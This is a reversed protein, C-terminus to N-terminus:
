NYSSTAMSHSAAALIGKSISSVTSSSSGTNSAMFASYSTSGGSDLKGSDTDRSSDPGERSRSRSLTKKSNSRDKSDSSSRGGRESRSNKTNESLTRLLGVETSHPINFKKVFGM